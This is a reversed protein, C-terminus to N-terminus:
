VMVPEVTKEVAVSEGTLAAESVALSVAEVIRADASVIDGAELLLLDGPVIEAAPIRLPAFNRLVMATPATLSKLASLAKEAKYEQVFGLAANLVAIVLIAVFELIDGLLLSLFAAGLLVYVLLSQFQHM